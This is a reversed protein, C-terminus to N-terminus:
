SGSRRRRAFIGDAFHPLCRRVDLATLADIAARTDAVMKGMLSWKPYRRYFDRADLVRAGFGIQDFALVAFGRKVFAPISPRQELRYDSGTSEWPSANSWGNQYTYPHLWIVVPWKGGPKDAPYFLDAKLDDGFPIEAWGM